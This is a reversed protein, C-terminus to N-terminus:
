VTSIGRCLQERGTLGQSTVSKRKYPFIFGDDMLSSGLLPSAKPGVLGFVVFTAESVKSKRRNPNEGLCESSMGVNESGVVGIQRVAYDESDDSREGVPHVLHCMGEIEASSKDGNMKPALDRM